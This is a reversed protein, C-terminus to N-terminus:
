ERQNPWLHSHTLSGGPHFSSWKQDVPSNAPQRPPLFRHGYVNAYRVLYLFNRAIDRRVKLAALRTNVLLYKVEFIPQRLKVRFAIVHAERRIACRIHFDRDVVLILTRPTPHHYSNVGIHMRDGAVRHVIYKSALFTPVFKANVVSADENLPAGASKRRVRTKSSRQSLSRLLLFCGGREIDSRLPIWRLLNSRRGLAWFSHRGVPM